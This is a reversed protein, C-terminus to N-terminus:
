VRMLGVVVRRIGDDGGRIGATAGRFIVVASVNGDRYTV